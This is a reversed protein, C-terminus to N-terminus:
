NGAFANFSIKRKAVADTGATPGVWGEICHIILVRERPIFLGSRSAPGRVEM